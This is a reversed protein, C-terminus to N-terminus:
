SSTEGEKEEEPGPSAPADTPGPAEDEGGPDPAEFGKPEEPFPDERPLTGQPPEPESQHPLAQPFGGRLDSDLDIESKFERFGKQFERLGKGISRSVEPLRGGFLLVAVVLIIVMEPLGLNFPLM